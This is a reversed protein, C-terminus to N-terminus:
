TDITPREGEYARPDLLVSAMSLVTMLREVSAELADIRGEHPCRCKVTQDTSEPETCTV